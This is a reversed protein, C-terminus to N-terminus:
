LDTAEVHMVVCLSSGKQRSLIPILAAVNQATVYDNVYATILDTMVTTTFKGHFIVRSGDIKGSTGLEKLMYKFLHEPDRNLKDAIIRFNDLVITKGETLL